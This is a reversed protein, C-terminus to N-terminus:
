VEGGLLLYRLYHFSAFLTFLLLLTLSAVLAFRRLDAVPAALGPRARFLGVLPAVLGFFAAPLLTGYIAFGIYGYESQLICFPCNHFPMAYIYSSVAVTVALLALPLFLLWTIGYIPYLWAGAREQRWGLLVGVLLLGAITAYFPWFILEGDLEALLQSGATASSFVVACCSTIVEPDLRLLYLTQLTLDLGLWPLILLLYWSKVRVLPYHQSRIDLHHIVLWFGYLFVGVLKVLLAPMGFQNALLAGTACMAGSLVQAFSDAAMVFLVLSTIQIALAYAVLTSSLWIESELGIQLSDDSAPNWHRIVRLASRAAVALLFIVLLGSLSLALSWSNLLM